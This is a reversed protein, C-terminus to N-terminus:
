RRAPVLRRLLSGDKVIECFRLAVAVSADTATTTEFWELLPMLGSESAFLTRTPAMYFGTKGALSLRPGVTWGWVGGRLASVSWAEDEFVARLRTARRRLRGKVYLPPLALESPASTGRMRGVALRLRAWEPSALFADLVPAASEVTARFVPRLADRAEERERRGRATAQVKAKAEADRRRAAKEADAELAALLRLTEQPNSM